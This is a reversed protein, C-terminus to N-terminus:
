SDGQFEKPVPKRRFMLIWAVALSGFFCCLYVLFPYQGFKWWLIVSSIGMSIASFVVTWRGMEWWFERLFKRVQVYTEKM